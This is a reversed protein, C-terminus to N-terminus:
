RPPRRHKRHVASVLVQRTGGSKVSAFIPNGCECRPVGDYSGPTPRDLITPLIKVLLSQGRRETYITSSNVCILITQITMKKKM